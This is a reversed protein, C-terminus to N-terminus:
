SAAIVRMQEAAAAVTAANTVEGGCTTLQRLTSDSAGRTGIVDMRIKKSRLTQLEATPMSAMGDTFFVIRCEYGHRNQESRGIVQLACQLAAVFNTGGSSCDAESIAQTGAEYVIQANSDFLVVTIIGGRGSQIRIYDNAGCAITPFYGKMSGSKDIVLVSHRPLTASGVRWGNFAVSSYTGTLRPVTKVIDSAAIRARYAREEMRTLWCAISIVLRGTGGTKDDGFDYFASTFGGHLVVPGESEMSDSTIKPDFFLIFPRPPSVDESTWAFATFPWLEDPTTLPNDNKDVAYSITTGENFRVLGPRLSIRHGLKGPSPLDMRPFFCQEASAETKAVSIEKKGEYGWYNGNWKGNLRVNTPQSTRNADPFQLIADLLYNVEFTYPGNDCFLLLGGGVKWFDRVATLFPVIKNTDKDHAETPLKGYGDSSFLWLESYPCRDDTAHQLETLGEGYSCVFTYEFGKRRLVAGCQQDFIARTIRNSGAKENAGMYLCVVLISFGKFAGDHWPEDEPNAGRNPDVHFLGNVDGFAAMFDESVPQETISKGLAPCFRVGGKCRLDEIARLKGEDVAQYIQNPTINPMTSSGSVGLAAAMASGLESPNPAYLCLPFLDAVHVPAIGVGIGLVDIGSMECDILASKLTVVDSPSGVIGDTLVIIKRGMGVGSRRAAIKLAAQCGIGIGSEVGAIHEITRLIDSVLGRDSLHRVPLGNTLLAIDSSSAAILDVVIDDSDPILPLAGLLAATTSLTHYANFVSFLRQVSDVVITIAYAKQNRRSKKRFIYQYNYGSAIFRRLGDIWLEGSSSSPEKGVAMNPVLSPTLAMTVISHSIGTFPSEAMTGGKREIWERLVEIHESVSVKGPPVDSLMVMLPFKQSAQIQVFVKNADGTNKEQIKGLHSWVPATGLVPYQTRLGFSPGQKIPVSTSFLSRIIASMADPLSSSQTPVGNCTETANIRFAQIGSDQGFVPILGNQYVTKPIKKKTLVLEQFETDISLLLCQGLSYESWDRSRDLVQAGIFDSIVITLHCDAGQGGSHQTEWEHQVMLVADLPYSEPRGGTRLADIVRLLGLMPTPNTPDSLIWIAERDAFAFHKMPVGIASLVMTIGCTLIEACLLKVPSLTTMSAHVDVVIAVETNRFTEPAPTNQDYPAMASSLASYLVSQIQLSLRQLEVVEDQIDPPPTDLSGPLLCYRRGESLKKHGDRGQPANEVYSWEQALLEEVTKGKMMAAINASSLHRTEIEDPNAQLPLFDTAKPPAPNDPPPKEVSTRKVAVCMQDPTLSSSGVLKADFKPKNSSSDVAVQPGKKVVADGGKLSFGPGTAPKVQGSELRFLAVNGM